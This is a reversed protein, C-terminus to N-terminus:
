REAGLDSGDKLIIRGSLQHASRLGAVDRNWSAVVTGLTMGHPGSTQSGRAIGVGDLPANRGDLSAFVTDHLM